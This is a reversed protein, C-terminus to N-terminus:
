KRKKVGYKAFRQARKKNIQVTQNNCFAIFSDYCDECVTSSFKCDFLKEGTGKGFIDDFLDYFLKCYARTIDSLKGEKVLSNESDSMHEFASEFREQFNVDGMDIELAVDNWKWQSM